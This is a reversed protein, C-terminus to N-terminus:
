AAERQRVCWGSLGRVFVQSASHAISGEAPDARPLEVLRPRPLAVHDADVARPAAPVLDRVGEVSRVELERFGFPVPRAVRHGSAGQQFVRYATAGPTGPSVTVTQGKYAAGEFGSKSSAAPQVPSTVSCASLVGAAVSVAAALRALSVERAGVREIAAGVDRAYTHRRARGTGLLRLAQYLTTLRNVTAARDKSQELLRRAAKLRDEVQQQFNVKGTTAKATEAVSQVDKLADDLTRLIRQHTDPSLNPM